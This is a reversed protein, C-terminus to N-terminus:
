VPSIGGLGWGDRLPGQALTHAVVHNAPMLRSRASLQSISPMTYILQNNVDHCRGEVEFFVSSSNNLAANSM